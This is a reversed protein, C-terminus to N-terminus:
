FDGYECKERPERSYYFLVILLQLNSPICALVMLVSSMALPVSRVCIIKQKQVKM